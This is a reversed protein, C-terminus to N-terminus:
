LNVGLRPLLWITLAYLLMTLACSVALALWFGVGHRLMAPFALFMPLSPLVFWFTAEAHSAIREVDSTDRWLWMIGLISVLPLSAIMGGLGPSRRAVESVIMVIVGSLLAKIILYTM